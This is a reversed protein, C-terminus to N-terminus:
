KKMYFRKFFLHRLLVLWAWSLSVAPLAATGAAELPTMPSFQLPRFFVAFLCALTVFLILRELMSSPPSLFIRRLDIQAKM